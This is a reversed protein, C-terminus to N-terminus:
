PMAIAGLTTFQNINSGNALFDKLKEIITETTYDLETAMNMAEVYENSDQNDAIYNNNSEIGISATADELREDLPVKFAESSISLSLPVSNRLSTTVPKTFDPIIEPTAIQRPPAAIPEPLPTQISISPAVAAATQEVQPQVAPAPTPVKLITSPINLSTANDIIETLARQSEAQLKEIAKKYEREANWGNSDRNRSTEENKNWNKETQLGKATALTKEQLSLYDNNTNLKNWNNIHSLINKETNLENIYNATKTSVWDNVKKAANIFDIGNQYPSVATLYSDWISSDNAISFFSNFANDKIFNRIDDRLKLMSPTNKIKDYGIKKAASEYEALMRSVIDVNQIHETLADNFEIIKGATDGAPNDPTQAVKALDNVIQLNEYYKGDKFLESYKEAVSVTGNNNEMMAMMAAGTMGIGAGILGYVGPAVGLYSLGSGYYNVLTKGLVKLLKWLYPLNEKDLLVKALKVFGAIVTAIGNVVPTVGTSDLLDSFFGGGSIKVEQGHAITEATKSKDKLSFGSFDAIYDLITYEKHYKFEPGVQKDIQKQQEMEVTTKRTRYMKNFHDMIKELAHNFKNILETSKEVTFKISDMLWALWKAWNIGNGEYTAGRAKAENSIAEFVNGFTFETDDSMKLKERVHQEFEKKYMDIRELIWKKIPDLREMLETRGPTGPAFITKFLSTVLGIVFGAIFMGRPSKLLKVIPSVLLHETIGGIAWTAAKFLKKVVGFAFSSAVSLTKIALAVTTALLKMSVQLTKGVGFVIARWRDSKIVNKMKKNFHDYNKSRLITPITRKFVLNFIKRTKESKMSLGKFFKDMSKFMSKTDEISIKGFNKLHTFRSIFAAMRFSRKYRPEGDGRVVEPQFSVRKGGLLIKIKERPLSRFRLIFQTIKAPDFYNKYALIKQNLVSTKNELDALAEAHLNFVGYTLQKSKVAEEAESISEESYKVYEKTEEEKEFKELEVDFGSVAEEGTEGEPKPEQINVETQQPKPPNVLKSKYKEITERNFAVLKGIAKGIVASVLKSIRSVTLGDKEDSFATTLEDSFTKVTKRCLETILSDIKSLDTDVGFSRLLAAVAKGHEEMIKNVVVALRSPEAEKADVEIIAAIIAKVIGPLEPTDAAFPTGLEKIALSIHNEAKEIYKSGTIKEIEAAASNAASEITKTDAM